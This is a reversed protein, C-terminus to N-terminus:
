VMPHWPTCRVRFNHLAWCVAMLLGRVGAKRLRTTEPVMRCRKVRSHVHEIRVRRRASRRKAANQTRTLARGRPTKTPMIVAVQPLTLALLGLDQLLPSGAPLPSPTTDAIRQDHPSGACTDRWFLILLAANILRVNQV